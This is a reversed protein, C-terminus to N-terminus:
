AFHEELHNRIKEINKSFNSYSTGLFKGALSCILQEVVGFIDNALEGESASYKHIKEFIKRLKPSDSFHVSKFTSLFKKFYWSPRNPETAIYLPTSRSFNLALIRNIFVEPRIFRDYNRLYDGLRVHIANIEQKEDEGTLVRVAEEALQKLNDKYTFYKEINRTISHNYWKHYMSSGKLFLFKADDSGHSFKGFTHLVQKTGKWSMREKPKYVRILKSCEVVQPTLKTKWWRLESELKSISINLVYINIKKNFNRLKSLNLVKDVSILNPEKSLGLTLRQYKTWWTTHRGLLPLLLSRGLDSAIQIAYIMEKEQNSFGGSPSYFFFRERPTGAILNELNKETVWEEVNYKKSYNLASGERYFHNRGENWHNKSISIEQGNPIKSDLTKTLLFLLAITVATRLKALNLDKM